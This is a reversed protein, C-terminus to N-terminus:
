LCVQELRTADRVPILVWFCTATLPVVAIRQVERADVLPRVTWAGAAGSPEAFLSVRHSGAAVVGRRGSVDFIALDFLTFEGESRGLTEVEFTDNVLRARKLQARGDRGYSASWGDSFYITAAGDPEAVAELYRVGRDTPVHVWRDRLRVRIHGAVDSADGYVRGIIEDHRGDGDVDAYARTTAMRMADGAIASGDAELHRTAVDHNTTFYAFALEPELDGDVDAISLHVAENRAGEHRWLETEEGTAPDIEALTLAVDVTRSRGRAAYIKHGRGFDGATALQVLGRGKVRWRERAVQADLDIAWLDGGHSGLVLREGGALDVTFVLESPPLRPAGPEVVAATAAPETAGAAAADDDRAARLLVV